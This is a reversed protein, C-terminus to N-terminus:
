PAKEQLLDSILTSHRVAQIARSSGNGRGYIIEQMDRLAEDFNDNIVWFDFEHCHSMEEFASAMRREVTESDDQARGLLRERLASLSPPLIFISLAGPIASRIQAAGQWDIELVLHQGTRLIKNVAEKSTGYLNGFVNAWELFEDNSIMERFKKEDVFHYNVDDVEDSRQRRTTHSVAVGIQNERTVLAKVLSTKGAGSPASVVFLQGNNNHNSM